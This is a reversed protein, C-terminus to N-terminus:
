VIEKLKNIFEAREKEKVERDWVIILTKNSRTPITDVKFGLSEYYEVYAGPYKAVLMTKMKNKEEKKPIIKKIFGLM